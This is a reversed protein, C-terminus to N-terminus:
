LTGEADGGGVDPPDDDDVWAEEAGVHFLGQGRANGVQAVEAQRPVFDRADDEEGGLEKRELNRRPLASNQSAWSPDTSLSRCTRLHHEARRVLSRSLLALGM